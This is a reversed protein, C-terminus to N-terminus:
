GGVQEPGAAPRPRVRSMDRPRTADVHVPVQLEGARLPLLTRDIGEVILRTGLMAQAGATLGALGSLDVPEGFRVFVVPRRWLALLVSGMRSPAEDRPGIVGTPHVVVADLGREVVLRVEAEGRAKSRDYVAERRGVCRGASEDVPRGVNAALDFAHVSSCHVLRTV